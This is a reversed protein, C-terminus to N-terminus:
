VLVGKSEPSILSSQEMTSVKILQDALVASGFVRRGKESFLHYSSIEYVLVQEEREKSRAVEQGDPNYIVTHGPCVINDDDPWVWDSTVLWCRNEFSRAVFHSYYQPRKAYPHNVSVKNCMPSFLISARKLALLRAPEFYNTDLCILVGFTIGKTQFPSFDIGSSFYNHYLYHKRQIGLLSGNEIVAASDFLETGALENFGVIVTVSYGVTIGVWEAFAEENVDLAHKRALKEDAYYGTFFGEPLCLFDIKEREALKLSHQFQNKRDKAEPAPLLQCAAIKIM